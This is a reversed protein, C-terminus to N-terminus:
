LARFIYTNRTRELCLSDYLAYLRLYPFISSSFDIKSELALSNKKKHALLYLPEVIFIIFKWSVSGFALGEVEQFQHLNVVINEHSLCVGKPQGTTGSSYPLLFPHSHTEHHMHQETRTLRKNDDKLLDSLKMTGEPINEDHDTIVVVQNIRPCEKVAELATELLHTHVFLVSSRSKQLVTAIENKTYMPNIPTMKAGCMSVALSVPAYDVHNPCYIAACQDEKLAFDEKLVAAVKTAIDYYDSFTRTLGTHYDRIATQHALHGKEEDFDKWDQMVFEAVPPYPGEPIPPYPSYILNLDCHDVFANTNSPCDFPESTSLARSVSARGSRRLRAALKNVNSFVKIM